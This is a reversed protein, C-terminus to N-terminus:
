AVSFTWLCRQCAGVLTPSILDFSLVYLTMAALTGILSYLARESICSALYLNMSMSKFTM